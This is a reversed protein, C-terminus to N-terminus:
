AGADPAAGAGASAHNRATAYAEQVRRFEDEDGGADPHVEKARDRYARKVTAADADPDLGLEAFADTVPDDAPTPPDVAPTEFPLRRGLSWGPMEHECLVAAVGASELRFYAQADFTIAVDRDLLWFAVQRGEVEHDEAYPEGIERLFAQIEARRRETGDVRDSSVAPGGPSLREGAAFAVAAALSAAAGLAFGALLWPPLLGLPEPIVPHHLAGDCFFEDARRAPRSAYSPVV